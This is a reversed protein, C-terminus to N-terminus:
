HLAMLRTLACRHALQELGFPSEVSTMMSEVMSRDAYTYVCQSARTVLVNVEFLGSMEVVNGHIRMDTEPKTQKTKGKWTEGVVEVPHIAQSAEKAQSLKQGTTPPPCGATGTRISGSGNQENDAKSLM